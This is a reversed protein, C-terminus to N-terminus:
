AGGEELKQPDKRESGRRAKLLAYLGFIGFILSVGVILKTHTAALPKSYSEVRLSEDVRVDITVGHFGHSSEGLVKVKWIGPREPFFSVFGNRDTRGVQHPERDEPGFIEYESYSAPDKESYFIKVSVGKPVVEYNVSHSFARSGVFLLSIAFILQLCVRLFFVGPFRHPLNRGNFSRESRMRKM